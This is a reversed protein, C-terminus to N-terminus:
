VIKSVLQKELRPLELRLRLAKQIGEQDDTVFRIEVEM